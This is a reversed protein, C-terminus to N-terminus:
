VAFKGPAGRGQKDEYGSEVFGALPINSWSGDDEKVCINVGFTTLHTTPVVEVNHGTDILKQIFASPTTVPLEDENMAVSFIEEDRGNARKYYNSGLRNLLTALLRMKLIERKTHSSIANGYGLHLGPFLRPNIPVPQSLRQDDPDYRGADEEKEDDGKMIAAKDVGNAAVEMRAMQLSTDTQGSAEKQQSLKREMTAIASDFDRSVVFTEQPIMCEGDNEACAFSPGKVVEGAMMKEIPSLQMNSFGSPDPVDKGSNFRANLDSAALLTMLSIPIGGKDNSESMGGSESLFWNTVVDSAISTVQNKIPGLGTVPLLARGLNPGLAKLLGAALGAEVERQILNPLQNMDVNRPLQKPRLSSLYDGLSYVRWGKQQCDKKFDPNLELLRLNAFLDSQCVMENGKERNDATSTTYIREMTVGAGFIWSEKLSKLRHQIAGRYKWYLGGLAVVVIGAFPAALESPLKLLINSLFSGITSSAAEATSGSTSAASQMATGSTLFSRGIGGIPFLSTTPSSQRQFTRVPHCSSSATRFHASCSRAVRNTTPSRSPTPLRM